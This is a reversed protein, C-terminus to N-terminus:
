IRLRDRGLLHRKRIWWLTISVVLWLLAAAILVLVPSHHPLQKWVLLAFAALGMCGLEAGAADLGAEQRGRKRGDFGAHQQRERAHREILTASACIIAPFALFLGGFVPGFIKAMLGAVVTVLGGLGYRLAWEYWRAQRLSALDVSVIM